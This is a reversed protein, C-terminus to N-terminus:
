MEELGAFTVGRHEALRTAEVELAERPAATPPQWHEVRIRLKSGATSPRWLGVIGGDLVIAGPRGLVPWLAKRRAADPVLLERDRLQLYPDYPGLLRLHGDDGPTAARALDAVDAKLVFRADAPGRTAVGEVAVEVADSPWRRQVDRTPADFVAAVDAVRTPGGFRLANRVVDFRPDAEDGLRTFRLPRHRPIRRLVPPSTGADLELGAQLAALRFPLEHVHVVGCPRCDRLFPEDLVASLAGSLDGKVMPRQVLHRLHDAIRRLATLPPIDAAKLPRNADFIRKAADAESLPATAVAVADVDARRYAHPAGRLTWAYLLDGATAPPAGRLALAWPAGDGGTDQVGLDLVDVDTPSTASGAARDLQHRRFRHRLVAARGVTLAQDRSAM